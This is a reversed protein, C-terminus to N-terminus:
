IGYKFELYYTLTVNYKYAPTNTPAYVWWKLGYHQISSSATDLWQYQKSAYGGFGGTQYMEPAAAPSIWRVYKATTAPTLAGHCKVSEHEEVVQNTGPIAADDLDICTYLIPNTPVVVTTGNWYTVPMNLPIFEAKVARFRYQDYLTTFQTYGPLDSLQFSLAQLDDTNASDTYTQIQVMRSIQVVHADGQKVRINRPIPGSGTALYRPGTYALRRNFNSRRNYKRKKSYRAM